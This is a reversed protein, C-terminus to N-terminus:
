SVVVEDDSAFVKGDVFCYRRGHFLFYHSHQSYFPIQEQGSLLHLSQGKVLYSITYNVELETEVPLFVGDSYLFGMSLQCPHKEGRCFVLLRGRLNERPVSPSPLQGLPVNINRLVPVPKGTLPDRGPEVLLHGFATLLPKKGHYLTFHYLFDDLSIEEKLLFRTVGEEERGAVRLRAQVLLSKVSISVHRSLYSLSRLRSPPPVIPSLFSNEPNVANRLLFRFFAMVGLSLFFTALYLFFVPPFLTPLRPFLALLWILAVTGATLDAYLLIVRRPQRPFLYHMQYKVLLSYLRSSLNADERASLDMFEEMIDQLRAVRRQIILSVFIGTSGLLTLLGSAVALLVRMCEEDYYQM